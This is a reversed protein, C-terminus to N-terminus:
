TAVARRPRRKQDHRRGNIRRCARCTRGGRYVYTNEEDFPHGRWCHTQRAHRATIGDSRLTNVRPTVAELHKPNVCLIVRCLHDIQLGKPIPGVTLEYAIRHAGWPRRGLEVQGYGGTFRGATWLWCEDPGRVDVKTWFREEIPIPHASM